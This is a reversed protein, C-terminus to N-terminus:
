VVEHRDALPVRCVGVHSYGNQHVCCEPVESISHIYGDYHRVHCGLLVSLTASPDPVEVFSRSRDPPSEDVLASHGDNHCDCFLLSPKAVTECTKQGPSAPCTLREKM